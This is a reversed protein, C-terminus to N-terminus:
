RIKIGYNNGDAGVKFTVQKGCNCEFIQAHLADNAFCDRVTLTGNQEFNANILGIILNNASQCRTRM